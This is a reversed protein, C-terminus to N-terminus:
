ELARTPKLQRVLYYLARRDGPNVGDSKEPLNRSAIQRETELWEEDLDQSSFIADLRQRDMLRSLRSTDCAIRGVRRLSWRQRQAKIFPIRPFWHSIVHVMSISPANM